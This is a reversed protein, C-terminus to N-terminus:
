WSMQTMEYYLSPYLSVDPKSLFNNAGSSIAPPQQMCTNKTFLNSQDAVTFM